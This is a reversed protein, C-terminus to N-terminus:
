KRWTSLETQVYDLRLLLEVLGDVDLRHTNHSNYDEQKSVEEKGETFFASYNLDRNDAPVRFYNGCDEARAREERTM